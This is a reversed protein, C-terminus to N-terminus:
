GVLCTEKTHNLWHGTRGTVITKSLQNTKVWIVERIPEYGWKRLCQHGLVIARVTIWLFILGQVSLVEIPLSLLEDDRITGYPLSMHIPWPPDAMVVALDGLIRLDFTRIGCNVFQARIPELAGRLLMSPVIPGLARWLNQAKM